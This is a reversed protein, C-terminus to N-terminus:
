SLPTHELTECPKQVFLYYDRYHSGHLSAVLLLGTAVSRTGDFILAAGTPITLM